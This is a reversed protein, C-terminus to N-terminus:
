ALLRRRLLVTALALSPSARGSMPPRCGSTGAACRSTRGWRSTPDLNDGQPVVGVRERMRRAEEPVRFGLVRLSGSTPPTTGLLMRLTTTKGAGNPGLIGFCEGRRVLLDVGDVARRPAYVKVLREAEVVQDANEVM